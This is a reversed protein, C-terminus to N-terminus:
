LGGDLDTHLLLADGRERLLARLKGACLGRIAAPRDRPGAGPGPFGDPLAFAGPALTGRPIERKLEVAIAEAPTLERSRLWPLLEPGVKPLKSLWPKSLEAPDLWPGIQTRRLATLHAGAGVVRGLERALARVYYGGRCTLRLTSTRPLAHATFKAEHVYVRSPPLAFSEGRHAKQWAREGEIRKNSTNPPVQDQWGVQEELATELLQPTLSATEGQLVPKGGEDGTDTELGWSLVAEYSKPIPHLEEMLKTAPGALILLLGEAFPDLAGGHAVPLPELHQDRLAEQFARVLSFSTEGRPKHVLHIGPGLRSAAERVDSV